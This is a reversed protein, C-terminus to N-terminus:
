ESSIEIWSLSPEDWIYAVNDHKDPRPIPAEFMCLEENFIWSPYGDNEAWAAKVQNQLATKEEQTMPRIHWVDKVIGDVWEYIAGENIEYHSVQPCEVREFPAFISPINDPDIEPYAALLNELIIPHGTPQGNELRIYLNM